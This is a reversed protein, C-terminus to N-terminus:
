MKKFNIFDAKIIYIDMLGNGPSRFISTLEKYNRKKKWFEGYPVRNSSFVLYRGDPSISPCYDKWESNITEPLKEAKSWKGGQAQHCTIAYGFKIQLANLYPDNRM